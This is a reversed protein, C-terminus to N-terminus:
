LALTRQQDPYARSLAAEPPLVAVMHQNTAAEGESGSQRTRLPTSGGRGRFVLPSRLHAQTSQHNLNVDGKM